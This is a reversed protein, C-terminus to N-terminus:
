PRCSLEFSARSVDSIWITLRDFEIDDVRPARLGSLLRQHYVQWQRMVWWM